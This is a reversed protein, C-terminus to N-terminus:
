RLDILESEKYRCLITKDLSETVKTSLDTLNARRPATKARKQRIKGMFLATKVEFGSSVQM